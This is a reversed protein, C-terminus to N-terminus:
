KKVAELNIDLTIEDGIAPPGYGMGFESRKFSGTATFDITEVQIFGNVGVQNFTVNLTVPRTVGLLNLDGTLVGTKEGTVQISTGKFTVVPFEASNFFDSSQLHENFKKDDGDINSAQLTVEAANKDPKSEDFHIVGQPKLAEPVMDSFGLHSVRMLINTHAPDIIYSEAHAGHSLGIGLAMIATLALKKM